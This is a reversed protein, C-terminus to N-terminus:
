FLGRNILFPGSKASKSHETGPQSCGKPLLAETLIHLHIGSYLLKVGDTLSARQMQFDILHIRMAAMSSNKWSHAM